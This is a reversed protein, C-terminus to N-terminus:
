RKRKGFLEQMELFFFSATWTILLLGTLSEIGALYRLEDMPEIDGYGLTTYTTFSFYVTDLFSGDFNGEFHGWGQAHHMLYYALAFLWIQAVHALMAGFVGPIIALRHHLGKRGVSRSLQYLCEYHIMVSAVVVLSNVIFVLIM